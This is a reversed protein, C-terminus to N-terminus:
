VPFMEACQTVDDEALNATTGVLHLLLECLLFKGHLDEYCHNRASENRTKPVDGTGGARRVMCYWVVEEPAVNCVLYM